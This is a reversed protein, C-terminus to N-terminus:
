MLRLNLMASFDRKLSSVIFNEDVGYAEIGIYLHTDSYVLKVETKNTSKLSDTPFLQWFNNASNAEQWFAEELKGDLFVEQNIKKVFVSRDLTQSSVSYAVFLLFLALIKQNLDSSKM